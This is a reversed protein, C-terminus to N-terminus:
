DSLRTYLRLLQRPLHEPRRIPVFGDKGFLCPLYEDAERDITVCFPHLGQRTKGERELLKMEARFPSLLSNKREPL